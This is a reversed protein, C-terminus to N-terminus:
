NRQSSFLESSFVCFMNIYTVEDEYNEVDNLATLQLRWEDIEKQLVENDTEADLAISLEPTSDNLAM